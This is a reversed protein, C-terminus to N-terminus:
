QKWKGTFGFKLWDVFTPDTKKAGIARLFDNLESMLEVNETELIKNNLRSFRTLYSLYAFNVGGRFASISLLVPILVFPIIFLLAAM